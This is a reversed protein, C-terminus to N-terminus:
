NVYSENDVLGATRAGPSSSGMDVKAGPRGSEEPVPVHHWSVMRFKTAVNETPWADLQQDVVITALM